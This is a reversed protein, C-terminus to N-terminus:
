SPGSIDPIEEFFDIPGIVRRNKLYTIEAIASKVEVDSLRAITNGVDHGLAASRVERVTQALENRLQQSRTM